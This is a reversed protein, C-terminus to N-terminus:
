WRKGAELHVACLPSATWDSNATRLEAGREGQPLPTPPSPTPEGGVGNKCLNNCFNCDRTGRTPRSTIRACAPLGNGSATESRPPLSFSSENRRRRRKQQLTAASVDGLRSKRRRRVDRVPLSEERAWSRVRFRSRSIGRSRPARGERRAPALPM